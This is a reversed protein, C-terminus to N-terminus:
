INQMIMPRSSNYKAAFFMEIKERAEVFRKCRAKKSWVMFAKWLRFYRFSPIEQLACFLKQELQLRDLPLFDADDKYFEIIGNPSITAYNSKDVDNYNCITFSYPNYDNLLDMHERKMTAYGFDPEHKALQILSELNTIPTESSKELFFEKPDEINIKPADKEQYKPEQKIPTQKRYPTIIRRENVKKLKRLVAFGPMCDVNEESLSQHSQPVGPTPMTKYIPLIPQKILKSKIQQEQMENNIMESGHYEIKSDKSDKPMEVMSSSSSNTVPIKNEM